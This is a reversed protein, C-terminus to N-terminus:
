YMKTPRLSITSKGKIPADRKVDSMKGFPDSFRHGVWIKLGAIKYVLECTMIVDDFPLMLWVWSMHLLYHLIRSNNLLEFILFLHPFTMTRTLQTTLRTLVSIYTLLTRCMRAITFFLTTRYCKHSSWYEPFAMATFAKWNKWYNVHEWFSLVTFKLISSMSSRWFIFNSHVILRIAISFSESISTCLHSFLDRSM